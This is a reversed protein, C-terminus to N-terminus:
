VFGLRASQSAHADASGSNSKLSSVGTRVTHAWYSGSLLINVEKAEHSYFYDCLHSTSSGGTVSSPIFCYKLLEEYEINEIYGDVYWNPAGTGVLPTAVSAEYDGYALDDQLLGTGERKILRYETDVANYGDIFTYYNGWLNEIGRYSIPANNAPTVSTSNITAAGPAGGDDTIAENNQFSTSSVSSIKLYGVADNTGWGGGTVTVAVVTGTALTTGGTVTAGINFVDTGADFFLVNYTGEGTGNVGVATDIDGFGTEVAGVVDVIGRGIMSQSNANAYEIYYLLQVASLSWINTIGWRTGRASARTRFTGITQTNDVAAGTISELKSVGDYHAEYAGTYIYDREVGGRQLWAPHVEFSERPAATAWWRYVNSSPSQSKVYMKPMQVMVQGDTGDLALGDGRPNSGYHNVSGDDALTCRRMGGWLPHRDFDTTTLTLPNGFEDIRKWEDTTQNWEVGYVLGAVEEVAVDLKGIWGM